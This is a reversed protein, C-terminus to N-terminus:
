GGIYTHTQKNISHPVFNLSPLFFGYIFLAGYYLHTIPITVIAFISALFNNKTLIFQFFTLLLLTLYIFLPWYFNTFYITLLYILFITPVFYGLKRSNDPYIRAFHGRHIAYRRIQHLHPLIVSRRHHYVFIKPHYLISQPNSKTLNLCLLTDEGPWHNQPFGGIAKFDKKKILFNVSPYDDVYRSHSVANRFQGAGGSGLWSQWVLGSAQQSFSDTPPTLCPGVLASIKINSDFIAIANQLWHIDPYSDDDLFALISGKALKAGLNRKLAPNPSKSIKDTIVLVEFQKFTQHELKTLTEKLYPTTTRVPIIISFLPPM